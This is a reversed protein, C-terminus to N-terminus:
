VGDSDRIYICTAGGDVYGPMITGDLYTYCASETYYPLPNVVFGNMEPSTMSFLFFIAYWM